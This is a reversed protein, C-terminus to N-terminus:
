NDTVRLLIGKRRLAWEVRNVRLVLPMSSATVVTNM